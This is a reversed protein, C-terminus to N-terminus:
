RTFFTRAGDFHQSYYKESLNNVKVHSRSNAAHIFRGDGIYLGVHSYRNGNTNFFVLDGVKLQSKNISIGAAAMDRATRPLSVNISTKYVYQVMGSCDFGSNRDSGGFRYPKEILSMSQLMLEPSAESHSIHNIRVPAVVRARSKKSSKHTTSCSSLVFVGILVVCFLRLYKKLVFEKRFITLRFRLRKRQLVSLIGIQWRGRCCSKVIEM